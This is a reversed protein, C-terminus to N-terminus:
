ALGRPTAARTLLQFALDLAVALLITPVAGLMVLDIAAQGLGQFIFVGFGGAGILAAVATNGMNQVGAIRLGNLIIPSALPLEVRFFLQLRGMGMGRGAELVDPSVGQFGAFTNRAIPLLAYLCLAIVAPTWGVGRVGAERLWPANAALWALPAILLGFLALSPITQVINLVAFAPDRLRRWKFALVGLPLGLAAASGVSVGTIFLHARLEVFFRRAHGAYEKALSLEDLMGSGALAALGAAFGLGVASRALSTRWRWPWVARRLFDTFALFLGLLALWLAPGMSVRLFPAAPDAAASAAFGQGALLGLATVPALVFGLVARACPPRGAPPDDGLSCLAFLLCGALLSVWAWAPLAEFLSLPEGPALRNPRVVVFDAALLSALATAAGLLGV